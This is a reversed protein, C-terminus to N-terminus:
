HKKRDTILTVFSNLIMVIGLIFVGMAVLGVGNNELISSIILSVFGAVLWVWWKTSSNTSEEPM